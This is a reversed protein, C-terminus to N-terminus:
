RYSSITISSEEPKHAQKSIQYLLKESRYQVIVGEQIVDKRRTDKRLKWSNFVKRHCPYGYNPSSKSESGKKVVVKKPNAKNEHTINVKRTITNNTHM